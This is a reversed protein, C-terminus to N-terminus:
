SVIGFILDVVAYSMLIIIVGLASWILIQTGQKTREPNGTSSMILMGGYVMLALAISGAITMAYKIANGMLEQFSNSATKKLGLTSAQIGAVDLFVGDYVEQQTPIKEKEIEIVKANGGKIYKDSFAPDNSDGFDCDVKKEPFLKKLQSERAMCVGPHENFHIDSVVKGGGHDVMCGCDETRSSMDAQCGKQEIPWLFCSVEKDKLAAKEADSLSQSEVAGLTGAKAQIEFNECVGADVDKKLVFSDGYNESCFQFNSGVYCRCAYQAADVKQPSLLFMGILLIISISIKKLFDM